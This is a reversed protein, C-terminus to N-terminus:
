EELWWGYNETRWLSWVNSEEWEEAPEHGALRLGLFILGVHWGEHWVMHQLYFIPHDYFGVKGGVKEAGSALFERMAAEVAVASRKLETRIKDLDALPKDEEFLKVQDATYTPSVQSLWMLRVQQVHALHWDLGEGDSSPKAHRLEETVLGAVNDVIAAQRKWSELLVEALEM